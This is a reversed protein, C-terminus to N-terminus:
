GRKQALLEDLMADDIDNDNGSSVGIVHSGRRASPVSSRKKGKVPKVPEDEEEESSSSEEDSSDNKAPVDNVIKKSRNKNSGGGHHSPKNRQYEDMKKRIEKNARSNDDDSDSESDSKRITKKKDKDRSKGTPKPAIQVNIIRMYHDIIKRYEVLKGTANILAPLRSGQRDKIMQPLSNCKVIVIKINKRSIDSIIDRLDRLLSISDESNDIYLTNKMKFYFLSKSM